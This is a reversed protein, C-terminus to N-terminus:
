VHRDALQIALETLAAKEVCDSFDRLADVAEDTKQRIMSKTYSIAKSESLINILDSIDDKNKDTKILLERVSRPAGLELLYIVPLTFIGNQLDQGPKKGSKQKISLDLLDDCLQFVIGLKEGYIRLKAAESESLGGAVGGAYCSASILSATKRYIQFFYQGRTQSKLDYRVTLQQLEGLCMDSSSQILAQNIGTGKYVHLYQMAEALLFDGSQIAVEVGSTANITARGRRLVAGDVVDDHILSATHMMELMGLLPLIPYVANGGIRYCLYALIPRLRKGGSTIIRELSSQMLDGPNDMQLLMNEMQKLKAEVDKLLEKYEPTRGAQQKGTM